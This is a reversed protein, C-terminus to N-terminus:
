RCSYDYRTFSKLVGAATQQECLLNGDKDAVATWRSFENAADDAETREVLNGHDDYRFTTHQEPTTAWTCTGIWVCNAVCARDAQDITCSATASRTFDIRVLRGAVYRYTEVTKSGSLMPEGTWPSYRGSETHRETLRGDESTYTVHSKSAGARSYVDDRVLLNGAQDFQMTGVFSYWHDNGTWTESAEVGNPHFTVQRDTGYGSDFHHERTQIVKGLADVVFEDLEVIAPPLVSAQTSPYNFTTMRRTAFRNDAYAYDTDEWVTSNQAGGPGAFGWSRQISRELRGRSDYANERMSRGYSPDVGGLLTWNEQRESAVQAGVYTRQSTFVRSSTGEVQVGVTACAGPHHGPPAASVSAGDCIADVVPRPPASTLLSMDGPDPIDAPFV